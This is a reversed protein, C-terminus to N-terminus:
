WGVVDERWLAGDEFMRKDASPGSCHREEEDRGMDFMDVLASTRETSWNRCLSQFSFARTTM